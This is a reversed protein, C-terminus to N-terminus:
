VIHFKQSFTKNFCICSDPLLGLLHCWQLDHIFQVLANPQGLVPNGKKNNMDLLPWFYITDIM